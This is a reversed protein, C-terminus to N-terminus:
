ELLGKYLYYVYLTGFILILGSVAVFLPEVVMPLWIILPIFVIALVIMMIIPLALIRAIIGIRRHLVLQRASRLAQLPRVDPLTVIYLAFLSSTVMYISLLFTLGFLILWLATEVGTVALGQSVVTAYLFNGILAPIFQLGIVMLILLFPVFPYMGKYFGDRMQPRQGNILERALWIIALTFVIFLVLQYVGVSEDIQEGNSGILYGFLALSASLDFEDGFTEEFQQKTEAISFTSGFGQVVVFNILAYLVAVGLFVKKNAWMLSATQRLLDRVRPLAQPRRFKKKSLRFSRHPPVERVRKKPPPSSSKTKNKTSNAM